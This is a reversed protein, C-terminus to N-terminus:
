LGLAARLGSTDPYQGAPSPEYGPEAAQEGDLVAMMRAHVTAPDAPGSPRLLDSWTDFGDLPDGALEAAYGHAGPDPPHNRLTAAWAEAAAADGTAAAAAIVAGCGPDHYRAACRGYDDTGGCASAYLGYGDRAPQFAPQENFTGQEIRRLDRQLVDEAKPRRELEAVIDQGLRTADLEHARDMAAASANFDDWPGFDDPGGGNDGETMVQRLQEREWETADLGDLLVDLEDGGYPYTV